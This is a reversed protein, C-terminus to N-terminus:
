LPRRETAADTTTAFRHDEDAWVLLPPLLILTSLLSLGINLATVKGFNDLLPFDSLALAAFGGMVTLGSATIARGIRFSARSMAERPPHGRAREEFYRTMLLINFETGMAIILPGSISTLPSYSIGLAYLLMASAGLALLVPLLPAIAKVPNRYLVLILVFIAAVAVLSMLDRNSSIADVAATGVVSIGAPAVTVGAPPKADREIADTIAKRQDLTTADSIALTIAAMTRDPSVVMDVLAAPATSLVQAASATTPAAGTVSLTFSAVSNSQMLESHQARQRQEFALMWDLVSQDTVHRGGSTTILLDLESTTGVVQSVRHLDRLVASNAPVFREPDTQTPIRRSVYLGGLAVVAAVLAIPGFRGVTRATLGGVFREVEIRAGPTPAPGIRTRERLYLITSILAASIVFVMVTGVALMSGFDRVMPVRSLHLVLFGVCAALAALALAPGLRAFARAIGEEASGSAATEEEIRSHLQIAFDVGLGMLIPLGSITVMTLPIGLFGMLGFASVSGVLVAPLSLLRWRARFIGFLVGVMLTVALGAMIVLASRMRDNIEKILLPPGSALASVGDFHYTGVLSRAAAAARSTEDISLNGKLRAVMLAHHADPFVGAFEPRLAGNPAYLLFEVFKPNDLSQEGAQLFRKADAGFQANFAADVQAKATAAAADEEAATAGRAAAAARATAEAAAEDRALQQPQSIMRQQIITQAFRLVTLPSLISQYDGRANMESALRALQASNAPSFLREITPGGAPTEFLVLMPDGGFQRQFRVNDMAVKSGPDLLTNQGTEFRLRPIGFALALAVCMAAAAIAVPWRIIASALIQTPRRM